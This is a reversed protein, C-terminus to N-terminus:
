AVVRRFVFPPAADTAVAQGPEGVPESAADFLMYGEAWGTILAFVPLATLGVYVTAITIAFGIFIGALTFGFSSGRIKPAPRKMEFRVLRITTGFIIVILLSDAIMGHMLALLLYYNDISKMGDVKPWTSRGWGLGSKEEAIDLYKQILEYRYAATEQSDSKANIRGVSAYSYFMSGAPVGVAILGGGMILLMRKRNKSLGVATLVAGIFGGM